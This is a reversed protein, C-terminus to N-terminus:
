MMRYVCNVLWRGGAVAPCNIVTDVYLYVGVGNVVTGTDSECLQDGAPYVTADALWAYRSKAYIAM